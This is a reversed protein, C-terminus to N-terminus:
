GNYWFHSEADDNGASGVWGVREGRSAFWTLDGAGWEEKFSRVSDFEAPAGYNQYSTVSDAALYENGGSSQCWDNWYDADNGVWSCYPWSQGADVWVCYHYYPCDGQAQASSPSVTTLLSLAFVALVTAAIRQMSKVKRVDKM